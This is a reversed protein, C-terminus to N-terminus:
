GTLVTRIEQVPYAVAATRFIDPGPVDLAAGGNVQYTGHWRVTLSVPYRGKRLYSHSIDSRAPWPTGPDTTELSTGDGFSWDFAIVRAHVTVTYAPSALSNDRSFPGTTWFYSPLNVLGIAGPKLEVRPDEFKMEKWLQLAVVSPPPPGISVFDAVTLCVSRNFQWPGNVSLSWYEWFRIGGGNSLCSTVAGPCIVDGYDSGPPGSQPCAEAYDWYITPGVRGEGWGPPPNEDGPNGPKAQKEYIRSRITNGNSDAGGGNCTQCPPAQILAHATTPTWLFIALLAACVSSLLRNM